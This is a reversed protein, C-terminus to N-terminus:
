NIDNRKWHQQNPKKGHGFKETWPQFPVPDRVWGPDTVFITAISESNHDPIDIESRSKKWGPNRHWIGARIWPDLFCQIGFGPVKNAVSGKVM